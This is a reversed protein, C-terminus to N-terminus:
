ATFIELKQIHGKTSKIDVGSDIMNQIMAPFGQPIEEGPVIMPIGPPYAWVAELATKGASESFPTFVGDLCKTDSPAYIQKPLPLSVSCDVSPCYTTESDIHQLAEFLADFSKEEDCISTMALLYKACSMETEISFEERLRSALQAGTLTTNQTSILIKGPDDYRFVSINKLHEAKQYFSDLRQRYLPFLTDKQSETFRLYADVSALLVYSPSSTEFVSLSNKIAEESVTETCIHLLATQTLAPMTKHLSMVVVDAGSKVTSEPFGDSFGFHAGHASDVLVPVGKKHCVAAIETVDQVVGEYTPSTLIVLSIDPNSNLIREVDGTRIKGGIGHIDPEATLYHPILGLLEVGNYVSKHCSRSMLIHSGPSCLAHMAALIGCTTGNVLPFSKRAGYLHAALVATEKLVGQMDHLNDFGDIETIDIGYPLATGLLDENRKHGPMHMPIRTKNYENLQCLLSTKNM